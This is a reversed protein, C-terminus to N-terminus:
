ITKNFRTDVCHHTFWDFNLQDLEINVNSHNFKVKINESLVQSAFKSQAKLVFNRILYRVQGM